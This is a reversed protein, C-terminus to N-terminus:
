TRQREIYRNVLDRVAASTGQRLPYNVIFDRTRQQRLQRVRTAYETFLTEGERTYEGWGNEDAGYRRTFDGLRLMGQGALWRQNREDDYAEEQSTRPNQGAEVPPQRSSTSALANDQLELRDDGDPAVGEASTSETVAANPPESEGQLSTEPSNEFRRGTARRWLQVLRSGRQRILEEPEGTETAAQQVAGDQIAGEENGSIRHLFQSFFDALGHMEQAENQDLEDDMAVVAADSDQRRDLMEDGHPVDTGRVSSYSLINEPPPLPDSSTTDMTTFNRPLLDILAPTGSVLVHRAEDLSIEQDRTPAEPGREVSEAVEVLLSIAEPTNWLDKANYVYVECDFKERNTRPKQGWISKPVHELNLEQFLRSFIYPYNAIAERLQSRSGQADKLRYKALALSIRLSPRTLFQDFPSCRCLELFHEAQGGRLALQDLIIAVCYPDGEPDLSLTLKAWEYSTRWTGRQGLNAIYRWAALWFERNEPRRFDLRAKGESIATGFSSHVSRGFSFLARELIDGSVSHDGQQKAVESVQLLTSIHYPNFQLLRILRQPDLSEVCNEFQWQVDQYATNHVFRYEITGDNLREVLEMGLGGSTAKPWEEKGAMFVNRRLALGALGQGRSTPSNRGALAGGLDLHQVRGRRRAPVPEDNEGELVVNGFLRKMEKAANLNKSDVALLRYMEPYTDHCSLPVPQAGPDSKQASLSKLALDIEDLGASDKRLDLVAADNEPPLNHGAKKKTKRKKKSKPRPKSATQAVGVENEPPEPADHTDHAQDDQESNDEVSIDDEPQNLVDFANLTKSIAPQDEESTEDKPVNRTEQLQKQQEQERQIKRLARSSM